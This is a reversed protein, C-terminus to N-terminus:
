IRVLHILYSDYEIESPKISLGGNMLAAGSLQRKVVSDDNVYSIEYRAELDLGPVCVHSPQQNAQVDHYVATLLAESKDQKVVAWATCIDNPTSLRYYDGRQIVDYYEKFLSVASKVQEKEETNLKTIDLEYGFTGSMAVATRTKFPTQRGTQHNPVASVHSGMTSIPYGFSSGYQISLRNIADTNDSLWIQPTYYMMGADYRGGGGSCGEFLVDEFKQTVTELVRYLGLVYRHAFEGQHEEDLYNSYKDCISRNMDWKVYSIPAESLITSLREIIYDCVEPNSYDLVLQNRGLAPKRNPSKVAWDPHSRYLDSDESVMEPEFWIGFDMGVENIRRGLENLTCGLKKENAFWDGLGSNDDDRKGFWGDDMVFLDVGLEHAKKAIEVLKDGTFDFYTAEWNNILVPRQEKSRKGRIINRNIARHYNRSLKGLGQNSFTLLVQPLELEAKTELNWSFDDPHIGMIVRTSAAQDKEVETLHEGSYLFSLGYCMGSTENANKDCIIAFPHYHHSSTGRVSGVSLIGHDIDCRSLNREMAHRGTFKILQWDGFPLDLNMSAVKELTVKEKDGNRITVNRGIVDIDEIISYWLEVELGNVEDAMVVCLSECANDDYMNHVAPLGKISHLGKEVRHSKYHLACTKNGSKEKVHLGTIRYDGTGFCTYEQPLVDLSYTRDDKGAEYPNGSFGRDISVFEQSMDDDGIKAGYYTHLLNQYKDIKMQYSTNKTEITILKKESNWKIAM